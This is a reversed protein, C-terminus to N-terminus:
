PGENRNYMWFVVRAKHPELQETDMGWFNQDGLSCDLSRSPLRKILCDGRRLPRATAGGSASRPWCSLQWARPHGLM